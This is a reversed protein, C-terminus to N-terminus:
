STRINNRCNSSYTPNGAICKGCALAATEIIKESVINPKKYPKKFKKQQKM